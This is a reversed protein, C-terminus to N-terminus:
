FKAEHDLVLYTLSWMIIVTANLESIGSFFVQSILYKTRGYQLQHYNLRSFLTAYMSITKMKEIYIFKRM